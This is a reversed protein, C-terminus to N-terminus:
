GVDGANPREACEVNSLFYTLPAGIALFLLFLGLRAGGEPVGPRLLFFLSLMVAAMMTSRFRSVTLLAGCRRCVFVKGLGWQTRIFPVKLGCQPCGPGLM